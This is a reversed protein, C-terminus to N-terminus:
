YGRNINFGTRRGAFVLEGPETSLTVRGKDRGEKQRARAVADAFMSTAAGLLDADRLYTAAHILSGYLYVNPYSTLILNTPTGASLTVGARMRLTYTYTQDAPCDFTITSGGVCWLRPEGSTDSDILLEPMVRRLPEGRGYSYEPWLNLAERFGVPLSVSRNSSTLSLSQDTEVTRVDLETNIDAEALAIWEPIRTSMDTRDIWNAIATQLETYTGIAM